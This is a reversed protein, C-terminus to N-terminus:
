SATCRWRWTLQEFVFRTRLLIIQFIERKMERNQKNTQEAPSSDSEIPGDRCPLVGNAVGGVLSFRFGNKLFCSVEDGYSTTGDIRGPVSSLVCKVWNLNNDSRSLCNCESVIAVCM